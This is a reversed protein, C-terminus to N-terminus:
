LASSSIIVKRCRNTLVIKRRSYEVGVKENEKGLPKGIFSGVNTNDYGVLLYQLSVQNLLQIPPIPQNNTVEESTRQPNRSLGIM